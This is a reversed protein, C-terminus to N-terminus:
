DSVRGDDRALRQRRLAKAFDGTLVVAGGADRVDVTDVGNVPFLAAPVAHAGPVLPAALLLEGAGAADTLLIAAPAGDIEVEYRANARLHRVEVRLDEECSGDAFAFFRTTAVGGPGAAGDVLAVSRVASLVPEASEQQAAAGRGGALAAAGLCLALAPRGCRGVGGHTTALM